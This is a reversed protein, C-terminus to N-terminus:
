INYSITQQQLTRLANEGVGEGKEFERVIKETDGYEGFDADNGFLSNVWSFSSTVRRGDEAFFATKLREFLGM